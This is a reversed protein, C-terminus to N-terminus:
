NKTESKRRWVRAAALGALGLGIVAVSKPEPVAANMTVGDLLVFPPVGSPTGVALFSLVEDAATATFTMNHHMWGTFGHSGNNVVATSHTESGLSVQWQETTPGDYGIQQAGAWYFGLDYRNGPTLGHITQQIAGVDFAGDAAVYNGGDPSTEPLGNSKSPDSNPVPVGYILGTFRPGWLYLPSIDFQNSVGTSDAVGPGVIFNYALYSGDGSTWGTSTTLWEFKTNLQLLTSTLTTFQKNPGDSTSEFSGNVILSSGLAERGSIFVVLGILIRALIGRKFNNM